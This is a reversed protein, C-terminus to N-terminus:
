AHRSPFAFPGLSSDVLSLEWFSYANMYFVALVIVARSLLAVHFFFIGTSQGFSTDEVGCTRYWFFFLTSLALQRRSRDELHGILTLFAGM